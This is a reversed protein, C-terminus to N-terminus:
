RARLRGELMAGGDPYRHLPDKALARRLWAAVPGSVGDLTPERSIVELAWTMVNDGKFPARGTLIECSIYAASFVDSPAGQAEGRLVEPSLALAVLNRQVMGGPAHDIRESFDLRLAGDTGLRLQRRHLDGHVVGARHAAALGECFAAIMDLRADLSSSALASPLDDLDDQWPELVAFLQEGWVGADEIALIRRHRLQAARQLDALASANDPRRQFIRLRREGPADPRVVRYVDSELGRPASELVVYHGIRSGKEM